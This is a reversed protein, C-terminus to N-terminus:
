NRDDDGYRSNEFYEAVLNSTLDRLKRVRVHGAESAIRAHGLAPPFVALDMGQKAPLEPREDGPARADIRFQFLEPAAQSVSDNLTVSEGFRARDDGDVM